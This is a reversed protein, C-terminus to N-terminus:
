PLGCDGGGRGRQVSGLCRELMGAGAAVLRLRREGISVADLAVGVSRVLTQRGLNRREGLEGAGRGVARRHDLQDLDRRGVGV